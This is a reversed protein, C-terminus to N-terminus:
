IFFSIQLFSIFAYFADMCSASTCLLFDHIVLPFRVLVGGVIQTIKVFLPLANLRAILSFSLWLEDFSSSILSM